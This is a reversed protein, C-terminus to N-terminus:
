TLKKLNPILKTARRQISEIENILGKRYPFWVSSAYELPSRVLSKYLLIFTKEDLYKFNRKILALMCNAKKIKESIHENFTLKNDIIVGLDKTCNVNQLKYNVSETEIFYDSNPSDIMKLNLAVCNNINLSLM